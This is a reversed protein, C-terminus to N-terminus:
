VPEAQIGIILELIGCFGTEQLFRFNRFIVLYDFSWIVWMM